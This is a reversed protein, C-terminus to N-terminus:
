AVPGGVSSALDTASASGPQRGSQAKAGALAARVHGNPLQTLEAISAVPEGLQGMRRVAEAAAQEFPEIDSAANARIKEIRALAAFFDVLAAELERERRLREADRRSTAERAKRVATARVGSSSSVSTKPSTDM